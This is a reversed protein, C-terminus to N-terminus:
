NTKPKPTEKAQEKYIELYSLYEIVTTIKADIRFNMFKSLYGLAQYYHKEDVKETGELAKNYDQDAEARQILFRKASSVTSKLDNQITNPSYSFLFGYSKLIKVLDQTNPHKEDYYVSLFTVIHQIIALKNDLVTLHKLLQFLHNSASTGSLSTYENFIEEWTKQLSAGSANLFKNKIRTKHLWRLDGTVVIKIFNYLPLDYCSKYTTIM